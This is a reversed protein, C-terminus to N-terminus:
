INKELKLPKERQRKLYIWFYLFIVVTSASFLSVLLILLPWPNAPPVEVFIRIEITLEESYSSNGFVGVSKIRMYYIGENLNNIKVLSSYTIGYVNESSPNFGKESSIYIVYFLAYDIDQWSITIDKVNLILNSSSFEPTQPIYQISVNVCNSITSNQVWNSGLIIYYYTIGQTMNLTDIYSYDSINELVKINSSPYDGESIKFKSRLIYYTKAGILPEWNLQVVGNNNPNPSINQLIPYIVISICNSVSTNRSYDSGIIAYYYKGFITLNDKFNSESVNTFYNLSSINDKDILFKSRFIYYTKVTPSAKWGLTVNGNPSPNNAVEYLLPRSSFNLLLSLIIKFTTSNYIAIECLGVDEESSCSINLLGKYAKIQFGPIGLAADVTLIKGKSMKVTFLTGNPVIQGNLDKIKKGSFVKFDINKYYFDTQNTQLIIKRNFEGTKIWHFFYDNFYPSIKFFSNTFYNLIGSGLTENTYAMVCTNNIDSYHDGMGGATGFITRVDGWSTSYGILEKQFDNSVNIVSAMHCSINYFTDNIGLLKPVYIKDDIKNDSDAVIYRAFNIGYPSSIKNLPVDLSSFGQARFFAAMMDEMELSSYPVNLFVIRTNNNISYNLLKKIEQSYDQLPNAIIVSNFRSYNLISSSAFISCNQNKLELAFKLLGDPLHNMPRSYNNQMFLVEQQSSNKEFFYVTQSFNGKFSTKNFLFRIFGDSSINIEWNTKGVKNVGYTPFVNGGEIYTSINFAESLTINLTFNTHEKSSFLKYEPIIKCGQEIFLSLNTDYFWDLVRLFLKSNNGYHIGVTTGNGNWFWETDTACFVKGEPNLPHTYGGMIPVNAGQAPNSVFESTHSSNAISFADGSINLAAGYLISLNNLNFFTSNFVIWSKDNYNNHQYDIVNLETIEMDFNKLLANQFKSINFAQHEGLIIVKGGREVFNTINNIEQLSYAGYRVANLFLTDQSTMNMVFSSLSRTIASVELFYNQLLINLESYGMFGTDWISFVQEQSM